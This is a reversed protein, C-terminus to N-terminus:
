KTSVKDTETAKAGEVLPTESVSSEMAVPEIVVVLPDTAVDASETGVVEPETPVVEPEIVVM